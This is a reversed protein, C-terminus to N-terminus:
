CQSKSQNSNRNCTRNADNFIKTYTYITMSNHLQYRFNHLSFNNDSIYIPKMMKMMPNARTTIVPLHNQLSIPYLKNLNPSLLHRKNHWNVPNSIMSPQNIRTISWPFVSLFNYVVPASMFILNNYVQMTM